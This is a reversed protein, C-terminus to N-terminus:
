SINAKIVDAIEECAAKIADADKGEIMIRILPETGSARVLVRGEDGLRTKVEEIIAMVEANTSIIDTDEPKVKVGVLVQPMKEMTNALESMKKGYKKYISALQVAALQGDGTQVFDKLIIHGSQEGGLTYGSKVMEELIYRDGVATCVLKIGNEKAFAHMGYNTMVTVVLTNDVLKGKQKFENALIAMIQDGDVVEGNEDVAFCRDADGDFAFGFDCGNERVYECISDTHTSGCKHNINLGDPECHITHVNAGLSAFLTHATASASGNACDVAINLGTLDGKITSKVHNIYDISASTKYSVRGIEDPNATKINQPNDLILDEIEEELEDSLKYGTGSFLKIGNFEVPNHSASIMVGADAEYEGILWPIAPTPMVGLLEVDVGLSCIGAVLASELMHGSIRTDQAIIIKARKKVHKTLVTAAARGIQMALECTLEENAVGRAGDTGFLRGM